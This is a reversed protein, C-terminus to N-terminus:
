KLDNELYLTYRGYSCRQATRPGTPRGNGDLVMFFKAYMM